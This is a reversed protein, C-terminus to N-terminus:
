KKTAVMRILAPVKRVQTWKAGNRGIWKSGQVEIKRKLIATSSNSGFVEFATIAVFVKIEVTPRELGRVVILGGGVFDEDENSIAKKWKLYM